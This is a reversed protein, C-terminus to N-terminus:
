VRGGFLCAFKEAHRKRKEALAVHARLVKLEAEVAVLEHQCRTIQEEAGTIQRRTDEAVELGKDLREKLVGVSQQLQLQHLLAMELISSVEGPVGDGPISVEDPAFKPLRALSDEIWQVMEQTQQREKDRKQEELIALGKRQEQEAKATHLQSEMRSRRGQVDALDRELEALPPLVTNPKLYNEFLQLIDPFDPGM